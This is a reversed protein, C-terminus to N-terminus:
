LTCSTYEEGKADSKFSAITGTRILTSSALGGV